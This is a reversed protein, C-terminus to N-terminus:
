ARRDDNPGRRRKITEALQTHDEGEFGNPWREDLWRKGQKVGGELKVRYLNAAIRDAFSQHM